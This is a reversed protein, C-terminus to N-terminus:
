VLPVSQRLCFTSLVQPSVPMESQGRVELSMCRRECKNMGVGVYGEPLEWFLLGGCLLVLEFLVFVV